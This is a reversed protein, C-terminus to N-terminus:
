GEGREPLPSSPPVRELAVEVPTWGTRILLDLGHEQLQRSLVDTYRADFKRSLERHKIWARQYRSVDILINISWLLTFAAVAAIWEERLFAVIIVTTLVLLPWKSFVCRELLQRTSFLEALSTASM